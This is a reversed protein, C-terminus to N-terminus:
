LCVEVLNNEEMFEMVGTWIDFAAQYSLKENVCANMWYGFPQRPLITASSYGGCLDLPINYLFHDIHVYNKAWHKIRGSPQTRYAM